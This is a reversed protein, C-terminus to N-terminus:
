KKEVGLIKDVEDPLSKETVTNILRDAKGMDKTVSSEDWQEQEVKLSSDVDVLLDNVKGKLEGVQTAFTDSDTGGMSVSADKLAKLAIGKAKLEAITGQLKDIEAAAQSQKTELNTAVDNLTAVAKALSEQQTAWNKRSQLLKSVAKKIEDPTYKEGGIEVIDTAAMHPRLKRLTADIKDINDKAETADRNVMEAKVKATVKAKRIGERSEELAKMRNDIEKQAVETKGLLQDLTNVAKNTGVQVRAKCGQSNFLYTGGLIVVVLVVLSGVGALLTKM